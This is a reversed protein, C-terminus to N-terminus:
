NIDSIEEFKEVLSKLIELAKEISIGNADEPELCLKQDRFEQIIEEKSM